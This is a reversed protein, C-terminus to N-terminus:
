KKRNGQIVFNLAKAYSNVYYKLKLCNNVGVATKKLCELNNTIDMDHGDMDM